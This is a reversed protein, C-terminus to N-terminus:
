NLSTKLEFLTDGFSKESLKSMSVLVTDGTRVQDERVNMCDSRHCMSFSPAKARQIIKSEFFRRKDLPLNSRKSVTKFTFRRLTTGQSLLKQFVGRTRRM